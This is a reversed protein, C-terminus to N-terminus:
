LRKATAACGRWHGHWLRPKAGPNSSPSLIAAFDLATETPGNKGLNALNNQAKQQIAISSQLWLNNKLCALSTTKPPFAGAFEGDM